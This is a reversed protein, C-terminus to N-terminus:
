RSVQSRAKLYMRIRVVGLAILVGAFSLGLQYEGGGEGAVGELDTQRSCRARPPPM